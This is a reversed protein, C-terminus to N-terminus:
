RQDVNQRGAPKDSQEAPFSNGSMKRRALELNARARPHNPNLKLTETYREGAEAWKGQRALLNGLNFQAGDYHPDLRVAEGYQELADNLKGQIAYASGLNNRLRAEAPDAAGRGWTGADGVGAPNHELAPRLLAIVDDPKRQALLVSSLNHPAHPYVGPAIRIAEAYHSAAEDLKGADVKLGAINYHALHNKPNVSLAHDYLARSTKWCGVQQRAGAALFILVVAGIGALVLKKGTREKLLDSVGWVVGIFIGIFPLYAYRDAMAQGGVQVLGIVPVLTIVYWAWGALVYPARRRIGMAVATVAALAAAAGLMKGATLGAPDLPYFFVLNIPWVLHGLYAAYSVAANAFRVSLSFRELDAVAGGASQAIYTVACSIGSLIFLPIKELFLAAARRNRHLPWRDLILLVLPLSVLMPKAMLGLALAAFVAAYGIRSPHRTYGAYTWITLMWFFGCLVTKRQSVWAVSEVNIPHVAFLAAVFASEFTRGTMGRLALFLLLVNAMHFGVNVLHHAKADLGFAAADAMHSIWTLPHWNAEHVAVFAWRISEMSLGGLVHANATVYPRDDIDVFDLDSIGSYVAGTLLILCGGLVWIRRAEIRIGQRELSRHFPVAM